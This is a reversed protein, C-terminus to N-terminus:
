GFYTPNQIVKGGLVRTENTLFKKESALSCFHAEAAKSKREALFISPICNAFLQMSYNLFDSTRRVKNCINRVRNCIIIALLATIPHKCALASNTINVHFAFISGCLCTPLLLRILRTSPWSRSLM